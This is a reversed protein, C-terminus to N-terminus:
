PKAAKELYEVVGYTCTSSALIRQVGDSDMATDVRDVVAHAVLQALPPKGKPTPQLNFFWDTPSIFLDRSVPDNTFPDTSTTMHVSCKVPGGTFPDPNVVSLSKMAKVHDYGFQCSGSGSVDFLDTVTGLKLTVTKFLPYPVHFPESPEPRDLPFM